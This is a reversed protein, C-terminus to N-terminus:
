NSKNCNSDVSQQSTHETISNAENNSPKYSYKKAFTECRKFYHGEWFLRTCCPCRTVTHGYLKYIHQGGMITILTNVQDETQPIICEVPDNCKLCRTFIKAPHYVLKFNNVIETIAEHFESNKPNVYLYRIPSANSNPKSSEEEESSDYYDNPLKVNIMKNEKKIKTVLTPSCTIIIRNEQKATFIIYNPSYSSDSICDYGLLRIHKAIKTICSDTIFKTQNFFENIEAEKKEDHDSFTKHMKLIGHSFKLLENSVNSGCACGEEMGEESYNTEDDITSSVNNSESSIDSWLSNTQQIIEMMEEDEIEDNGISKDHHPEQKLLEADQHSNM